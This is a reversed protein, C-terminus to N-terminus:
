KATALGKDSIGNWVVRHTHRVPHIVGVKPAEAAGGEWGEGAGGDSGEEELEDRVGHLGGRLVGRGIVAKPQVVRLSYALCFQVLKTQKTTFEQTLATCRCKTVCRWKSSEWFINRGKVHKNLLHPGCFSTPSSQKPKIWQPSLSHVSSWSNFADCCCEKKHATSVLGLYEADQWIGVNMSKEKASPELYKYKLPGM